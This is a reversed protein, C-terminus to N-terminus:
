YVKLVKRLLMSFILSFIIYTGLWGLKWGLLNLAITEKNSLSISKLPPNAVTKLVKAYKQDKSVVLDKYEIQTNNFLIQLSNENIYDGEEAKIAWTIKGDIIEKTANDLIEVGEPVVLKTQGYANREFNASLTFTEGPLISQYAINGSMWGFIFIIPLFTILTAKMSHTMYKMNTQMSKKQVEMMKKPDNKLEKMEKQLEKMEDKLDKMLSQNTMLKYVLTIILAVAFAIIAIGLTLNLNLLPDMIPDLLTTTFFAAM